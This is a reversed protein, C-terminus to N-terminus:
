EMRYDSPPLSYVLEIILKHLEGECTNGGSGRSESFVIAPYCRLKAWAAGIKLFYLLSYL